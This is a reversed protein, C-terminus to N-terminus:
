GLKRRRRDSPPGPGTSRSRRASTITSHCAMRWGCRNGGKAAPARRPSPTVDAKSAPFLKLGWRLWGRLQIEARPQRCRRMTAAHRPCSGTLRWNTQRRWMSRPRVGAPNAIRRYFVNWWLLQRLKVTAPAFRKRGPQRLLLHSCCRPASHQSPLHHSGLCPIPGSCSLVFRFYAAPRPSRARPTPQVPDTEVISCTDVRGKPPRAQRM